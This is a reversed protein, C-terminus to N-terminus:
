HACTNWRVSSRRYWTMLTRISRLEGSLSTGESNTANVVQAGTNVCDRVVIVVMFMADLKAGAVSTWLQM